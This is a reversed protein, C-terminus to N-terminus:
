LGSKELKILAGEVEAELQEGNLLCLEAFSYERSLESAILMGYLLIRLRAVLIGAERRFSHYAAVELKDLMPPGGFM